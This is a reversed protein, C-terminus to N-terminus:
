STSWGLRAGLQGALWLRREDADEFGQAMQVAEAVVEPTLLAEVLKRDVSILITPSTDSAAHETV